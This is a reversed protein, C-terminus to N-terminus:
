NNPDGAQFHANELGPNEVQLVYGDEETDEDQQLRDKGPFM